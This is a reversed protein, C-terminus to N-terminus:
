RAMLDYKFLQREEKSTGSPLYLSVVSLRGYDVQVWRGEHDLDKWGLGEITRDPQRKSFLSVGSYGPKQADVYAVHYGTPFFIDDTRQHPQIRTEQLCVFDAQQKALWEFFGKRAAARIGNVNLTIIRM